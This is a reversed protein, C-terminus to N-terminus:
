RDTVRRMLASAARLTALEEETFDLEALDQALAADRRRVTEEAIRHGAETLEINVRRLDDTDAVRVVWGQEVMGNVTSTMTPSAVRECEALRSISQTGRLRLHGIVSLQADSMGDVARHRRLRRALRFTALRLDTATLSLSEDSASM